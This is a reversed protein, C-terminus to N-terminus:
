RKQSNSTYKSLPDFDHPLVYKRDSARYDLFEPIDLESLLESLLKVFNHCELLTDGLASVKLEVRAQALGALLLVLGRM